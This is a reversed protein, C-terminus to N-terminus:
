TLVGCDCLLDFHRDLFHQLHQLQLQRLDDRVFLKLNGSTMRDRVGFRLDGDVHLKGHSTTHLLYPTEGGEPTLVTELLQGHSNWLATDLVLARGPPELALANFSNQEFLLWVPQQLVLDRWAAAFALDRCYIVGSNLYPHSRDVGRAQLMQDFPDVDADRGRWDTLFDELTVGSADPCAAVSKGAERMPTELKELATRFPKLAIIDSDIWVLEDAGLPTVYDVMAAKFYWPHPHGAHQAPTPLLCGLETLFRAQSATFGYDCVKLELAPEHAAISDLLMLTNAFLNNDAGTIYAITM